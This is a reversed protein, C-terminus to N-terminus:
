NVIKEIFLIQNDYIKLYDGCPISEEESKNKRERIVLILHVQSHKKRKKM